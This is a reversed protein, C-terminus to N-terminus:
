RVKEQFSKARHVINLHQNPKQYTIENQVDYNIFSLDKYSIGIDTEVLSQLSSAWELNKSESLKSRSKDKERKKSIDKFSLSRRLLGPADKNIFNSLKKRFSSSRSVAASKEKITVVKTLKKGNDSEGIEEHKATKKYVIGFLTNKATRNDLVVCKQSKGKSAKHEVDEGYCKKSHDIKEQEEDHESLSYLHERKNNVHEDEVNSNDVFIHTKRNSLKREKDKYSDFDQVLDERAVQAREWARDVIKDLVEAIVTQSKFQINNNNQYTANKLKANNTKTNKNTKQSASTPRRNSM